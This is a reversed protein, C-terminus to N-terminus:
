RLTLLIPILGQGAELSALAIGATPASEAVQIGDLTTTRLSRAHGDLAAATLREGVQIAREGADAKVYAIGQVVIFLYEGPAVVGQAREISPLEAGDKYSVSVAARSLVVGVVAGGEQARRVQIIPAAGPQLAETVGVVTALDGTEMAVTGNNQAVYVLICGVCNGAVNIDNIFYAAYQGSSQAFVGPSEGSNVAYLAAWYVGRSSYALSRIGDGAFTNEVRLGYGEANDATIFAGNDARVSFSNPMTSEFTYEQTDAWVFAGIHRASARYGAAFSYAGDAINNSGGAVTAYSGDALNGHGGIVTSAFGSATNDSGGAVAANSDNATNDSGGGIAAYGGSAVNNYGGGVVAYVANATNGAGGCVAAYGASASNYMGGAVTADNSSATNLIGGGVAAHAGSATNGWGGSVTAAPRDSTDGASDGARNSLGGGVVGYDDTVQNVVGNAGGGGIAAGYAGGTVSNSQYGGILNPSATNPELRLARQNNVLLNLAYNNLSGLNGEATLSNGGRLWYRNDTYATSLSFQNGALTLGAGATYTTDNDVGDAFGAPVGSLGAWPAGGAVPAYRAYPAATLEQRPTLTEYAGSGAPCRVAVQLYRRDGNFASAGFDLDTLTFYGDQVAVAPRALTSGVQDAGGASAYLSFQFDCVDTVPGAIGHLRGQYTFASGLPTLPAEAPQGWGRAGAGGVSFLLSLVLSLGALKRKM